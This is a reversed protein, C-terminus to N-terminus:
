VPRLGMWTAVRMPADELVFVFLGADDRRGTDRACVGDVVMWWWWEIPSCIWRSLRLFTDRSDMDRTDVLFPSATSSPIGFPNPIDPTGVPVSLGELVFSQEESWDWFLRTEFM